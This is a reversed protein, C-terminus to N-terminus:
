MTPRAPSLPPAHPRTHQFPLFGLGVALGFIVHSIIAASIPTAQAIQALGVIPLVVYYMGLWVIVGWFAGAVVTAGKSLGYFLAGFMAGWIIAVAFYCILGLAVPGAAFGPHMAREHLFPTAAGKMGVWIDQHKTIAGVLMTLLLIVGGIIGAVVGGGVAHGRGSINRQM